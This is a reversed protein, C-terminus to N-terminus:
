ITMTKLVIRGEFLLFLGNPKSHKNINEYVGTNTSKELCQKMRLVLKKFNRLLYTDLLYEITQKYTFYISLQKSFKFM